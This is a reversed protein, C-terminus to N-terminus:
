TTKVLHKLQRLGRPRLELRGSAELNARVALLEEKSYVTAQEPMVSPAFPVPALGAPASARGKEMLSEVFSRAADEVGGRQKAEHLQSIHSSVIQHISQPDKAALTKLASACEKASKAGGAMISKFLTASLESLQASTVPATKGSARRVAALLAENADTWVSVDNLAFVSAVLAGPSSLATLTCQDGVLRIGPTGSLASELTSTTQTWATELSAVSVMAPETLLSAAYSAFQKALPGISGTAGTDIPPPRKSELPRTPRKLSEEVADLVAALRVYGADGQAAKQRIFVSQKKRIAHLVLETVSRGVTAPPLPQVSVVDSTYSCTSTPSILPSGGSLTTLHDPQFRAYSQATAVRLQPSPLTAYFAVIRGGFDALLLQKISKTGFRTMFSELSPISPFMRKWEAALASAAMGLEGQQLSGKEVVRVLLNKFEDKSIEQQATAPPSPLPSSQKSSVATSAGSGAPRKSASIASMAFQAAQSLLAAYASSKPDGSPLAPPPAIVAQLSTKLAQLQQLQLRITVLDQASTKLGNKALHSGLELVQKEVQGLLQKVLAPQIHQKMADLTSAPPEPKSLPPGFLEQNLVVVSKDAPAHMTILIESASSNLTGIVPISQLFTLVDVVQFRQCLSGFSPMGSLGKAAFAKGWEEEFSSLGVGQPFAVLSRAVVDVISDKFTRLENVFQGRRVEIVVSDYDAGLLSTDTGDARQRPKFLEKCGMTLGPLRSGADKFGAMVLADQHSAPVSLPDVVAVGPIERLLVSLDSSSCTSLDLDAKYTEQYKRPICAVPIGTYGADEILAFVESLLPANNMSGAKCSGPVFEPASPRLMLKPKSGGPVFAEANVNLKKAPRVTCDLEPTNAEDHEPTDIRDTSM